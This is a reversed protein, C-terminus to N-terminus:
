RLIRPDDAPRMLNKLYVFNSTPDAVILYHSSPLNRVLLTQVPNASGSEYREETFNREIQFTYSMDRVPEVEGEYLRFDLYPGVYADGTKVRAHTRGFESGARAVCQGGQNEFGSVLGSREGVVLWEDVPRITYRLGRNFAECSRSPLASVFGQAAANDIVALQMVSATLDVIEYTLFDARETDPSDFAECGAPVQGNVLPRGLITLRDGVQVGAACLDLGGGQFLGDVNRDVIGRDIQATAPLVGEYTVTWSEDRLRYDYPSASIEADVSGNEEVVWNVTQQELLLARPVEGLDSPVAADTALGTPQPLVPSGCSLPGGGIAERATEILADPLQCTGRPVVRGTAARADRLAFSPNVALLVGNQEFIRHELSALPTEDAALLPFEPVMLCNQEASQQRLAADGYFEEATLLNGGTEFTCEANYAEVYTINGNDSSVFAGVSYRTVARGETDQVVSRSVDGAISIPARGVAAGLQTTFPLAPPEVAMAADVLEGSQANVFLVQSNARDIVYVMMGLPDVSVAPYGWVPATAEAMPLRHIECPAASNGDSCTTNALAQENLAIMSLDNSDSYVVYAVDGGPAISIDAVTGPLALTTGMAADMTGCGTDAASSRRNTVGTPEDCAIADHVWLASPEALAVVVQEVADDTGGGAMQVRRPIGPLAVPEMSQLLWLNIPSLSRDLQNVVYAVTGDQGAAIDVPHRGVEIHSVGPVTPDLDLLQPSRVSLDTVAVNNTQENVILGLLAQQGQACAVLPGSGVAGTQTDVSPLCLNGSVVAMARPANLSAPFIAEQESCGTASFGTALALFLLARFTRRSQQFMTRTM